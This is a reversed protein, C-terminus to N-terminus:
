RVARGAVSWPMFFYRPLPSTLPMPGTLAARMTSAKPSAVKSTISASALRRVSTAPMPGIRALRIAAVQASCRCMRSTM